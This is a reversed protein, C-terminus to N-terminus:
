TWAPIKRVAGNFLVPIWSSPNGVAPANTLTGASAGAADTGIFNVSALFAGTPPRIELTVTSVQQASGSGTPTGVAFRLQGQTAATGTGLSAQITVNAGQANAGSAQTHRYLVNAPAATTDGEGFHVTTIGLNVGGAVFSNAVFTRCGRGLAISTAHDVRVDDGIATGNNVNLQCLRGLAVGNNVASFSQQNGVGVNAGQWSSGTGIGPGSFANNFTNNAGVITTPTPTGAGQANGAGVIVCSGGLSPQLSSNYGILVSETNGVGGAALTGIVVNRSNVTVAASAGRGMLVNDAIVGVSGNDSILGGFVQLKETALPTGQIGVTLVETASQTRQFALSDAATPPTINVVRLLAGLTLPAGASIGGGLILPALDAM